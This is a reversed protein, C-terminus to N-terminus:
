TGKGILFVLLTIISTLQHSHVLLESLLVYLSLLATLLLIQWLILLANPPNTILLLNPPNTILLLNPPNNILLVNPPQVWGYSYESRELQLGVRSPYWQPGTGIM